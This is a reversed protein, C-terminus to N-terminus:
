HVVKVTSFKAGFRSVDQLKWLLQGFNAIARRAFIQDAQICSLKIKKSLFLFRSSKCSLANFFNNAVTEFISSKLSL